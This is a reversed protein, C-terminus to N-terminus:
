VTPPTRPRAETHHFRCSTPWLIHCLTQVTSVDLFQTSDTNEVVVPDAAHAHHLEAPACTASARIRSAASCTAHTQRRGADYQRSAPKETRASRLGNVRDISVDIFRGHATLGAVRGCLARGLANRETAVPCHPEYTPKDDLCHAPLQCM